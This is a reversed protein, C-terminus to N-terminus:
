NGRAIDDHITHLRLAEDLVDRANQRAQEPTPFVGTEAQSQFAHDILLHLIVGRSMGNIVADDVLRKLALDLDAIHQLKNEATLKEIELHVSAPNPTHTM